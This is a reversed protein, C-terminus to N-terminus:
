QMCYSFSCPLFLISQLSSDIESIARSVLPHSQLVIIRSSSAQYQAHLAVTPQHVNCTFNVLSCRTINTFMLLLSRVLLCAILYRLTFVAGSEDCLCLKCWMHTDLVLFVSRRGSRGGGVGLRVESFRTNDLRRSVGCRFDEAEWEDSNM